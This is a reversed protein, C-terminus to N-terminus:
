NKINGKLIKKSATAKLDNTPDTWLTGEGSYKYTIKMKENLKDAFTSLNFIDANGYAEVQLQLGKAEAVKVAKTVDAEAQGAIVVAKADIEATEKELSAVNRNADEKIEAAKKIGEQKEASVLKQTEADFDTQAIDVKRIAQELNAAVKDRDKEIALTLKEEEALLTAQITSKIEPDPHFRRVLATLIHIGKQEGMNILSETFLDQFEERSESRIFQMTTYNSGLNKCISTVQPEIIKELVMDVTGYDRIIRPAEKPYVGWIVTIDLFMENGDALPFSIGTGEKPREITKKIKKENTITDQTYETRVTWVRYGVEVTDPRILRTNIPHLGPTLVVDLIGKNDGERLTQVGVYGPKIFTCKETKAITQGYPNIRWIGPTLVNRQTGKEDPEAIFRGPPLDKGLNNKIVVVEGAKVNINQVRESGYTWPNLFHRGPGKMQELVGQQETENSAYADTPAATGTKRTVKLSEGEECYVRCIVWTWIGFYGVLGGIIILSVIGAIINKNNKM